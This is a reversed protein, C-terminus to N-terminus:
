IHILSLQWRNRDAIKREEDTMESIESIEVVLLGNEILFYIGALFESDVIMGDAWWGATNKVWAPVEETISVQFIEPKEVENYPYKKVVNEAFNKYNLVVHNEPVVSYATDFYKQAEKYEGFNGFGVGMGLLASINQPEYELVKYLEKMSQKHRDLNSLAIGKMLLADVNEPSILLIEDYVNVAERLEGNQLHKNAQDYLISIDTDVNGLASHCITSFLISSILFGSLLLCWNM